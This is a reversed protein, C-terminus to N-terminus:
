IDHSRPTAFLGMIRDKDRFRFFFFFVRRRLCAFSTAQDLPESCSFLVLVEFHRGWVRLVLRRCCTSCRSLFSLRSRHVVDFGEPAVVVLAHGRGSILYGHSLFPIDCGKPHHFVAQARGYQVGPIWVSRTYITTFRVNKKPANESLRLM